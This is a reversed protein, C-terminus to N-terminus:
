KKERRRQSCGSWGSPCDGENVALIEEMSRLPSEAVGVGVEIDQFEGIRQAPLVAPCKRLYAEVGANRVGCVISKPIAEPEVLEGHHPTAVNVNKLPWETVTGLSHQEGVALLLREADALLLPNINADGNVNDAEDVTAGEIDGHNEALVLIEGLDGDFHALDSTLLASPDLNGARVGPSPGGAVAAADAVRVPQRNLLLQVVSADIRSVISWM